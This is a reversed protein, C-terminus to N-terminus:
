ALIHVTILRELHSQLGQDSWCEQQTFPHSFAIQHVKLETESLTGTTLQTRRAELTKVKM